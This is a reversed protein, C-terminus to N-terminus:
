RGHRAGLNVKVRPIDAANYVWEIPCSPYHAPGDRVLVVALRLPWGCSEIRSPPVVVWSFWAVLAVDAPLSLL